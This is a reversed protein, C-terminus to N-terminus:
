QFHAMLGALVLAEWDHIVQRVKLGQALGQMKSKAATQPVPIALWKDSQCTNFHEPFIDSVLRLYLGAM